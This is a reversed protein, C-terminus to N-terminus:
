KAATRSVHVAYPQYLTRSYISFSLDAGIAFSLRTTAWLLLLRMAGAVLAAMGFAISLPLLMQEAATLNLLNIFPQAAPHTYIHEPSTLAGLFPLVAGISVIEAFSAAIMLILLLAFQKRRRVSIHSWLRRVFPSKATIDTVM